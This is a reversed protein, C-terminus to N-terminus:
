SACANRERETRYLELGAAQEGNFRWKPKAFVGTFQLNANGVTGRFWDPADGETHFYYNHYSLGPWVVVAVCFDSGKPIEPTMANDGLTIWKGARQFRSDGLKKYYLGAVYGGGNHLHVYVNPPNEAFSSKTSLGLFIAILALPTVLKNLYKSM